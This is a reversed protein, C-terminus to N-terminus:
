TWVHLKGELIVRLVPGKQSPLKGIFLFRNRSIHLENCGRERRRRPEGNLVAGANVKNIICMKAASRLVPLPKEAGWKGYVDGSRRALTVIRGSLPKFTLHAARDANETKSVDSRYGGGAQGALAMANQAHIETGCFDFCHIGPAARNHFGSDVLHYGRGVFTAM